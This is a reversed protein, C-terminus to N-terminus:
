KLCMKILKVLNAHLGFEILIGYLVDRRVPDYAKEYDIFLQPVTGNCV